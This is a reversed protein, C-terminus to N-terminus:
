AAKHSITNSLINLRRFKKANHLLAIRDVTNRDYPFPNGEIFATLNSLTVFDALRQLGITATTYEEQVGAIYPKPTASYAAVANTGMKRINRSPVKIHRYIGPIDNEKMVQAILTNTLTSHTAVTRKAWQQGVLYNGSLYDGNRTPLAKALSCADPDRQNVSHAFERYTVKSVEVRVKEIDDIEKPKDGAKYRIVIAPVCGMGNDATLSLSRLLFRPLLRHYSDDPGTSQWRKEVDHMIEPFQRVFSVDPLFSSILTGSPLQQAHFADEAVWTDPDDIAFASLPELPRRLLEQKTYPTYPLQFEASM